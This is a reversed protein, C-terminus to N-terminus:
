PAQNQGQPPLLLLSATLGQLFRAYIYTLLHLFFIILNFKNVYALLVLGVIGAIGFNAFLRYHKPRKTWMAAIAIGYYCLSYGVQLVFIVWFLQEPTKPNVRWSYMAMFELVSSGDKMRMVYVIDYLVELAFQMALLLMLVREHRTYLYDVETWMNAASNDSNNGASSDSDEPNLPHRIKTSRDKYHSPIAETISGDPNEMFIPGVPLKPKPPLMSSAPAKDKSKGNNTAGYTDM